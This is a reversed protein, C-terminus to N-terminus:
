KRFQRWLLAAGAVIAGTTVAARLMSRRRARLRRSVVEEEPNMQRVADGRDIAIRMVEALHLAVRPTDQQIQERCSFGDAIVITSLGAERVAPLLARESI